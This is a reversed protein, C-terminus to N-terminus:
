NGKGGGGASAKILVPLGIEKATKKALQFDTVPTYTGPVFPIRYSKVTRKSELKDGMKRITEPDPGIFILGSDIVKQAFIYNESLFGYGPHVADCELQLAANIIKDINLYSESSPSPGIHVAFDANRVYPMSRDIDSFIAVTKIGMKHCTKIIRSAIEGRNAILIKTIKKM